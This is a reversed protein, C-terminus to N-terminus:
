WITSKLSPQSFSGVEPPSGDQMWVVESLANQRQLEPISYHTLMDLYRASTVTCTQLDGDTVKEFFYPGLISTSTISCMVTVKEDRLPSAVM